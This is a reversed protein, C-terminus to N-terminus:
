TSSAPAPSAAMEALADGSLRYFLKSTVPPVGLKAYFGQAIPNDNDTTWEVRSCNADRAIRCLESMLQRGIGHQRTGETVFLEKLYLSRTLGAAPWLFSYSALGVLRNSDWALIAYVTPPDAFLADRIYPLRGAVPEDETAGYFRDLETLLDAIAHVDSPTAPRLDIM